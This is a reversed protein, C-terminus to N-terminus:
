RSFARWVRDAVMAVAGIGMVAVASRLAQAIYVCKAGCAGFRPLWVTNFLEEFDGLREKHRDPPVFLCILLEGMHPPFTDTAQPRNLKETKRDKNRARPLVRGFYSVQEDPVLYKQLWINWIQM